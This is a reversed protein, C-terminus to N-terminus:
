GDCRLRQDQIIGATGRRGRDTLLKCLPYILTILFFVSLGITPTSRPPVFIRAPTTAEFPARSPWDLRGVLGEAPTSATSSRMALVTRSATSAAPSLSESM